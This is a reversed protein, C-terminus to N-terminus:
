KVDKFNTYGNSSYYEGKWKRTITITKGSKKGVFTAEYAATINYKEYEFLACVKSHPEFRASYTSTSGSHPLKELEESYNWKESGSITFWRGIRSSFDNMNSEYPVCIKPLNDMDLKVNPKEDPFFQSTEKKYIVPHESVFQTPADSDNTYVISDKCITLQIDDENMYYYSIEEFVYTDTDIEIEDIIPDNIDDENSCSILFFLSLLIPLFNKM